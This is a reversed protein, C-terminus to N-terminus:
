TSNKIFRSFHYVWGPLYYKPQDKELLGATVSFSFAVDRALIGTM